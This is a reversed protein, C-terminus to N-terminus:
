PNLSAPCPAANMWRVHGAKRRSGPQPTARAPVAPTDTRQGAPLCPVHLIATLSGGSIACGGPFQPLEGPTGGCGLSAGLEKIEGFAELAQGLM